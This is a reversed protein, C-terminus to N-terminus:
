LSVSKTLFLKLDSKKMLRLADADIIKKKRKSNTNSQTMNCIDSHDSIREMFKDCSKKM